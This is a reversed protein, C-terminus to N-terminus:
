RSAFCPCLGDTRCSRACRHCVPPRATRGDIGGVQRFSFYHATGCDALSSRPCCVAFFNIKPM